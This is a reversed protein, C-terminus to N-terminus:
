TLVQFNQINGMFTKLVGKGKHVFILEDADANKYFYDTQSERPAALGIYVDNNVLVYKRSALFDDEPKIDFGQLLMPKINKEVAIKPAVNESRLIEKIQTPRHVQYLLSSFGHFGETGFLQEYYFNGQPSKFVTHRKQPINGLHHYIPM